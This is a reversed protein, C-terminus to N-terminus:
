AVVASVRSCKTRRATATTDQPSVVAESASAAFSATGVLQSRDGWSTISASRWSTRKQGHAVGHTEFPPAYLAGNTRVRREAVAVVTRLDVAPEPESSEDVPQVQRRCASPRARSYGIRAAATGLM